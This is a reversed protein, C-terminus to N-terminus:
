ILGMTQLWEVFEQVQQILNEQPYNVYVPTSTLESPAAEYFVVGTSEDYVESLKERLSVAADKGNEPLNLATRETTESNVFAEGDIFDYISAPLFEAYVPEKAGEIKLDFSWKATKNGNPVDVQKESPEASLGHSKLTEKIIALATEETLSYFDGFVPGNGLPIIEGKQGKFSLDSVLYSSPAQGDFDPEAFELPPFVPDTFDPPLADYAQTKGEFIPAMNMKRTAQSQPPRNQNQASAARTCGALQATALASLLLMAACSSKWRKPSHQLLLRNLDVKSKDPYSVTYSKVPALKTLNM